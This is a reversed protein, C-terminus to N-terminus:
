QLFWALCADFCTSLCAAFCAGSLFRRRFKGDFLEQRFLTWLYAGSVSGFFESRSAIVGARQKGRRPGRPGFPDSGKSRRGSNPFGPLCERYPERLDGGSGFSFIDLSPEVQFEERARNPGNGNSAREISGFSWGGSCPTANAAPLAEPCSSSSSSWLGPVGIPESGAPSQVRRCHGDGPGGVTGSVGGGSEQAFPAGLNGGPGRLLSARYRGSPWHQIVGAMGKLSYGVMDELSKWMRGDQVGVVHNMAEVELQLTCAEEESSSASTSPVPCIGLGGGKGHGIKLLSSGGASGKERRGKEECRGNPLGGLSGFDELSPGGGKGVRQSTASADKGGARWSPRQLGSTGAPLEPLLIRCPYYVDHCGHPRSSAEPGEIPVRAGDFASAHVGSHAQKGRLGFDEAWARCSGEWCPSQGAVPELSNRRGNNTYCGRGHSAESSTTGSSSLGGDGECSSANSGWVRFPSSDWSARDSCRVIWFPKGFGAFSAWSYQRGGVCFGVHRGCERPDWLLPFAIAKARQWSSSRECARGGGSGELPPGSGGDHSQDLTAGSLIVRWSSPFPEWASCEWSNWLCAGRIWFCGLQVFDKRLLKGPGRQVGITEKRRLPIWVRLRRLLPSLLHRLIAGPSLM